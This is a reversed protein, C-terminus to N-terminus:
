LEFEIYIAFVSLVECFMCNYSANEGDLAELKPPPIFIDFNVETVKM